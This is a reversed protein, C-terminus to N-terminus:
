KLVLAVVLLGVGALVVKGLTGSAALPDGSASPTTSPVAEIPQVTVYSTTTRRKPLALTLSAM